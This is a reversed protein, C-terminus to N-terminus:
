RQRPQSGVGRDGPPDFGLAQVAQGIDPRNV